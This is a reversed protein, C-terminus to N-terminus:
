RQAQRDAAERTFKQAEGIVFRTDQWQEFARVVARRIRPAQIVLYGFAIFSGVFLLAYFAYEGLPATADSAPQVSSPIM